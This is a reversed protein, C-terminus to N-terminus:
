ANLVNFSIPVQDTRENLVYTTNDTYYLVWASADGQVRCM